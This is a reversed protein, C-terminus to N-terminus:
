SKRQSRAREPRPHGQDNGGQRALRRAVGSLRASRSDKGRQRWGAMVLGDLLQGMAELVAAESGEPKNANDIYIKHKLLGDRPPRGPVEQADAHHSPLLDRSPTLGAARRFSPENM